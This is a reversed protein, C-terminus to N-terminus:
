LVMRFTRKGNKNEKWTAIKEDDVLCVQADKMRDMLIFRLEEKKNDFDKAQAKLASYEFMLEYIEKEDSLKLEKEKRSEPYMLELDTISEAPPPTKAEVLNWFTKTERKIMDLLPQHDGIYCPWVKFERSYDGMVFAALYGWSAGYAYMETLLQVLYEVPMGYKSDLTKNSLANVSTTKVQLVGRGSHGDPCGSESIVRDLNVGLFRSWPDEEPYRIFNDNFVKVDPMYEDAFWRAVMDELYNGVFTMDNGDFGESLGLKERWLAYPTKYGIGLVSPIDSGGIKTLRQRVWDEYIEPRKIKPM